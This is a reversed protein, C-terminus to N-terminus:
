FPRDGTLTTRYLLRRQPLAYDCIALHQTPVNDWMVVDGVQWEHRYCFRPQTCHRWLRELLSRSEAEPLGRIRLTHGENVFICKRGTVPHTRVVPHVVVPVRDVQHERLAAGENGDAVLKAFRNSLSFEAELGDLRRRESAPLADYAAATSAWVTNGLTKGGAEPIEIAHLVSGRSPNALYSLDTHWYRGADPIGINRGNEVINSVVLIEEHEPHLYQDLVHVELEGFGRSFRLLDEAGIAQGRFVLVAHANWAADLIRQGGADLPGALDVGHVAAGLAGAFPEIRISM